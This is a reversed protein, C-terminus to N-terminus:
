SLRGGARAGRGEGCASPPSPHPLALVFESTPRALGRAPLSEGEGMTAPLMGAQGGERAMGEAIESRQALAMSVGDIAVDKIKYVGDKIGLRWDVAIPAGQQPIIRSSVIVGDPRQPQRNR